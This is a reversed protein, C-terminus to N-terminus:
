EALVTEDKSSATRRGAKRRSTSPVISPPLNAGENRTEALSRVGDPPPAFRVDGRSRPEEQATEIASRMRMALVRVNPELVMSDHDGPVETVDVRKCWPTWGNDEYLFDRKSDIQRGRGLIHAPQLKPRFLTITGDYPRVEYRDLARYFAEGIAKSHLEGETAAAALAEQRLRRRWAIRNRVIHLPYSLGIRRANQLHMIVKDRRTLADPHPLPTDLMVLLSVEEGEAKLQRAMELAAIGGGSFGGLMYPGHPRVLRVEALYDRAMEDFSEHPQDEGYLGRAQVGYFPRESGIQHALHRLNLVNGFMGAVLFFPVGPGGEGPHMPVLHTYRPRSPPAAQGDEAPLEARILAACAAITPAEFLVSIPFEVSFARRVKAFLRVAILSHGGLDFFNDEVGIQGVGLLDCWIEVLAEEVRDRPAVYTSELQPRAFSAGSATSAPQRQLAAAAEAQKVLRALDMSSVYIQEGRHAGLVNVFARRGEEPRIGQSLNHQFSLESQSLARTAAVPHELDVDIAEALLGLELDLAGDLRKMTFNEIAVLVNGDVDAITVDVQAFGSAESSGDRVTVVSCIRQPLRRKYARISGYSVPVWLVDGTYGEILDMAYGTALDIMGPHLGFEDLDAVFGDALRLYAIAQGAGALVREVVDWRPGFRLHNQQKTTIPLRRPSRLETAALDIVAPQAQERLILEAQAVRRWGTPAPGTSGAALSPDLEVRMAAEFSYGERTPTLRVRVDRGSGDVSLPRFFLLDQIEFPRVLGIEKLAAACLEPYAAGPLLADGGATRHEDLFWRDTSWSAELTTVGKDDTVFRDFFSHRAPTANSQGDKGLMRAAARAAMGIENWVGWNLSLVRCDGRRARKHAFANMFANAAVYDVQGVPATVTSTSSFMVFMDLLDAKLVEDLVLTGYVKPALVDEIESQTKAELPGDDVVGAAHVVGNIPGFRQRVEHTAARMSEINTVDGRVVLVEGGLAEIEGIDRAARALQNDPGLKRVLDPWDARGPLGSRSLLAIRAQRKTALEKAITLGIGGLGGTVIVVGNKRLPVDGEAPRPMRRIDWVYRNGGRHAVIVNGAPARLEADLLALAPSKQEEAPHESRDPKRRAFIDALGQWTRGAPSLESTEVDVCAVTVEAIERPIVKVPGLVTAQEPSAVLDGDRVKQMGTTAVVIHLPRKVGDAAWAQAFFLLSYFGQEQNRHFVSSGPRLSSPSSLLALHAVRDPARGTRVLDRVLSDYGSRGHEPAIVYENDSVRQYSDGARVRVVQDGRRRLREAVGDGIGSDDVFVLWSLQGEVADDAERQKWVPAWFWRSEDAERDALLSVADAETDGGAGPEIFYRQGQFAYTPLGVRRRREGAFLRATDLPGGAAWLRGIATLLFVDDPVQEEPHRMTPIAAQGAKVSPQAKALSSLTKGPGVELFLRGADEALTALCDAFRVTGRLHKVWYDPSTAEEDTIWTGTYNSVWRISPPSLKISRLYAGFEALAPELLRSHAAIDIKVRRAEIGQAALREQLKVIGAATGSAVCMDPANVVALDLGLEDLLPQLEGPALPVAAMGGAVRDMLRGRLVVLGLCDEFRMAGAICAATNEGVSHGLLATPTIGWGILLQALAYEVLFIAPLQVSPSEFAAAAEDAEHPECLLLPRLDIGHSAQLRTLGADVHKAFAPETAYLDAAMRVYQSGGGPFMFAISQQEASAAHTFVRRPEISELLSIAEERDRAVLVRRESFARRGVQLTWAVDGLDCGRDERLHRALNASHADLAARNRASLALLQLRLRSPEPPTDTFEEVVAFANTGGVGLSNVGARRPAESRAQWPELRSQVFFPSTEFDILANNKEFNISPPLERHHLALTAKALSAVGAATDLHGINTKVSGIGCFGVAETGSRFAQTLAAVEIPDGMPTGTGHCEVLRISDPEVGAVALAEAVCAAQGEVSPALYGVKQSGDNNVATGKVVAYIRDGDAVADALRRLVVVGAGSGFVTGQSRHDFARCHGDPSLIEGQEFHYGRGHPIEITVGGALAMDCEGSLLHQSALHVAVLSTSCATQVNVAPGRLDFLYSARTTLFDKDNGTHRLLFMGVNRVLDPNTLLNFSFYGGMGCGGFIGVAGHFSEPPHGADEFAEWCVELFQRHQPDMIAAEKPSFGFFDADFFEMRDLVAAARVYNPRLFVERSVGAELLDEERLRRISETGQRLNEWFMKANAAGPVRVAMGIIAVDNENAAL